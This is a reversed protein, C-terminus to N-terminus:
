RTSITKTKLHSIVANNRVSLNPLQTSYIGNLITKMHHAVEDPTLQESMADGEADQVSVLGQQKFAARIEVEVGSIRNAQRKLMSVFGPGVQPFDRGQVAEIPHGSLLWQEWPFRISNPRRIGPM